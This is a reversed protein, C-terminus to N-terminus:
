PVVQPSVVTKDALFAIHYESFESKEDTKVGFEVIFFYHRSENDPFKLSVSKVTTIWSPQESGMWMNALEVVENLKVNAGGEIWEATKSLQEGDVDLRYSKTFHRFTLEYGSVRQENLRRIYDEEPTAAHCFALSGGAILVLSKFLHM